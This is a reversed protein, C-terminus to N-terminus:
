QDAKNLAYTVCYFAAIAGEPLQVVATTDQTVLLLNEPAYVGYPITSQYIMYTPTVPLDLATYHVGNWLLPEDGDALPPLPQLVVDEDGMTEPEVPSSFSPNDDDVQGSCQSYGLSWFNHQANVVIPSPNQIDLQWNGWFASSDVTVSHNSYDLVLATQNGQFLTHIMFLYSDNAGNVAIQNTLFHCNDATLTGNDISVASSQSNAFRTDKISVNGSNSVEIFTEAGSFSCNEINLVGGDVNIRPSAAFTCNNLFVSCQNNVFTLGNYNEVHAEELILQGRNLLFSFYNLLNDDLDIEQIIGDKIPRRDTNGSFLLIGGDLIITSFGTPYDDAFVQLELDQPVTVTQGHFESTYMIQVESPTSIDIQDDALAGHVFLLLMTLPLASRILSFAFKM